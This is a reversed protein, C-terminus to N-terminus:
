RGANRLILGGAGFFMVAACRNLRRLAKPRTLTTRLRGALLAYPVLVVVLTVMTLVSLAAWEGPGVVTLDLVTPLLALYFVITKPNGLTVVLGSVMVLWPNRATGGVVKPTEVDATWFRWGLYILYLGGLIKVVFFVGSAAAALAALGLIAVTLFFIDGIALGIIFPLSSAFGHGLARGVLAAVGPGPIVAAIGLAVVYTIYPLLTEPM